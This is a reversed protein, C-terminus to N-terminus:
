PSAQDHGSRDGRHYRTFTLDRGEARRPSLILGAYNCIIDVRGGWKAAEDVMSAIENEQTVDCKVFIARDKGHKSNIEKDTDGSSM